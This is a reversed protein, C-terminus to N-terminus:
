QCSSGILSGPGASSPSLPRLGDSSLKVQDAVAMINSPKLRGQVFGKGHLYALADLVPPLMDRAEASSLPRQPLIESLNEEAYEMVVYLLRVQGM